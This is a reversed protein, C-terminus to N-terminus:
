PPVGVWHLFAALATGIGSLILMVKKWSLDVWLRLRGERIVIEVQDIRQNLATGYTEEVQQGLAVPVPLKDGENRTRTNRSSPM